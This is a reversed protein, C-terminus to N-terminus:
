GAHLILITKEHKCQNFQDVNIKIYWKIQKVSEMLSRINM